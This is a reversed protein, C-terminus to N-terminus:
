QQIVSFVSSTANQKFLLQKEDNDMIYGYGDNLNVKNLGDLWQDVSMQIQINAKTGKSATYDIPFELQVQNGPKGLHIGYGSLQNNNNQYVGDLMMIHYGGGLQTPWEMSNNEATNELAFAKNRASDIGFIFSMRTYRGDPVDKLIYDPVSTNPEPLNIFKYMNVDYATGDEKYIIIKSIYYKLSKVNWNNQLENTYILQNDSRIEFAQSKYLHKFQFTVQANELATQEEKECSIILISFIVLLFIKRM